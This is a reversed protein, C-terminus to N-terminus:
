PQTFHNLMEKLSPIFDRPNNKFLKKLEEKTFWKVEAVEESQIKLKEAPKNITTFFWQTFHKYETDRKFKPGQILKINELGLEEESEKIINDEYSEGKEVTGSVSPGWRGPYHSKTYARKALLIEGKSNEIWLASVRYRLNEKDVIERPKYDTICDNDDVVIINNKM